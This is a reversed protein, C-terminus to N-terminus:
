DGAPTAPASATSYAGIGVANYARVWFRHEQGGTLGEVTQTTATSNFIRVKVMGDLVHATVAYGTIPSGGDSAPATWSVTARGDGATVSQMTPAGPVVPSPSVPPTVGAAVESDTPDM